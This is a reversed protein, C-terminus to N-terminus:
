NLHESKHSRKKKIFIAIVGGSVMVFTMFMMISTTDGTNTSKKTALAFYSYHNTTFEIYGDKQTSKLIEIKGDETIYVVDFSQGKQSEDLTIRYTIMGDPHVINGDKMFKFDIVKQIIYDALFKKDTIKSVLGDMAKKDLVKTELVIDKDFKGTASISTDKNKITVMEDPNDTPEKILGAIANNLAIVASNVADQKANADNMITTAEKMAAELVNWSAETYDSKNLAKAKNLATELASKDAKAPEEPKKVLEKVAKTLDAEAKYAEAQTLKDNASAKKADALAKAVKAWSDATYDAEKLTEADKIAKKLATKDGITPEEPKKVLDKM